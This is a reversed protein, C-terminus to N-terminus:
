VYSKEKGMRGRLRKELMSHARNLRSAVTGKPCDLIQAIEEYPLGMSYRLVVVIRHEPDLRAIADRVRASREQELVDELPSKAAGRVFDLLSEVAPLFRRARRRHDFCANVVLRYLWAEFSGEGRFKALAAPLKLFTDQVIDEAAAADGSYRVAITYLRDKYIDFLARLAEQEGRRCADVLGAQTEELLL